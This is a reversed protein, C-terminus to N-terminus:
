LQPLLEFRLSKGPGIDPSVRRQCKIGIVSVGLQGSVDDEVAFHRKGHLALRVGITGSVAAIDGGSRNMRRAHSGPSATIENAFLLKPPVMEVPHSPAISCSSWM